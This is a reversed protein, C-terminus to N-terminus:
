PLPKEEVKVLNDPILIVICIFIGLLTFVLVWEWFIWAVGVTTIDTYIVIGVIFGILYPILVLKRVKKNSDNLNSSIKRDSLKPIIVKMIIWFYTLTGIIFFSFMSMAISVHIKYMKMEMIDINSEAIFSLLISQSNGLMLIITGIRSVISSIKVFRRYLYLVIPNLIFAISLMAISFGLWGTTNIKYDGLSSISNEYWSFESPYFFYAFIIGGAFFLIFIPLWIRLLFKKNFKGFLIESISYNYTIKNKCNLIKSIIPVM